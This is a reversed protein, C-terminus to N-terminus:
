SHTTVILYKCWGGLDKIGARGDGGPGQEMLIIAKDKELSEDKFYREKERDVLEGAGSHLFFSGHLTGFTM